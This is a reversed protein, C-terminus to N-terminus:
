NLILRSEFIDDGSIIDFDIAPPTNGFNMHIWQSSGFFSSVSKYRFRKAYTTASQHLDGKVFHTKKVGGTIGRSDIFENIYNETKDNITLPLNKFMDKADKGHCLIFLHGGAEFYDIFQDFVTVEIEPNLVALCAELSKNAVYSFDGDHNGGECCIFKIDSFKGCTSLDSFLQLMLSIYNKYQDKNNMNQPLAHGGRTTEANYGDLSDGLNCININSAGCMSQMNIIYKFIIDMRKKAEELNFTNNYISYKSVDAGIHMDSLYVNIIKKNQKVEPVIVPKIDISLNGTFELFNAVSQKLDYYKKTMDKLSNETHKVRDQELKRLYDNEKSQLTLQILEQTSREELVHPAMPVSAKTINFARIIRKFDQFTYNPFYRSVSRQTLNSGETSYLKYILDMEERSLDGELPEKDRILVKFKYSEIKGIEEGNPLKITKSNDRIYKIENRSEMEADLSADYTTVDTM